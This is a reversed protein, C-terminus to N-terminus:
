YPIRDDIKKKDTNSNTKSQKDNNKNPNVPLVKPTKDPNMIKAPPNINKPQVPRDIRNERKPPVAQQQRVPPPNNVVKNEPPKVEKSGASQGKRDARQPPDPNRKSVPPTVVRNNKPPNANEFRSPKDNNTRNKPLDPKIIESNRNQSKLDRSPIVGNRGSNKKIDNLKEVRSPAPRNAGIDRNVQPRFLLLQNHTLSQGPKDRERLDVPNIKRGTIRQVDERGPGAVYTTRRKDDYFTKNIVASKNFIRENDRKNIHYMGIDHREIDRDRVFIWRDYHVDNYSSFSLNISVGPRMPAWGYYGSSWRWTVWSPGWENDPVWFWGMSDDFDWRGYHFAAWGWEYDSVWTWGFSTMIWYGNTLYPIFDSDLSPMWVYGYDSYEVWHGYPSLQDYFVQFNVEYQQANIVAPFLVPVCYLTIIMIYIRILRKM